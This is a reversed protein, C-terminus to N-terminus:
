GKAAPPHRPSLMLLLLLGAACAAAQFVDKWVDWWERSLAQAQFAFLALLPLLRRDRLRLYQLLGVVTAAIFLGVV